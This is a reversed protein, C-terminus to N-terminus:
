NKANVQFEVPEGKAYHQLNRLVLSYIYELTCDIHFGGSVHPTILVNPEHWLPHDAPLPEPDTVDLGAGAIQGTRLATLLDDTDILSGRGANMLLASSKMLAFQTRTFIRTTEKSAPLACIVFDAEPLIADLQDLTCLADVYDPKAAMNRRVGIVRNGLMKMIRACTGGIAGLGLVVVTQGHLPMVPGEDAWRGQLQNSHYLHLKKAMAFLMAILHEGVSPGYAAGANCVIAGEPVVGPVVYPDFGASTLHLFELQKMQRIVPVPLNGVVISAEFVDTEAVQAPDTYSFHYHDSLKNLGEQFAENVPLAILVNKM